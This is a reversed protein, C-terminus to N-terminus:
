ERVVFKCKGVAGGNSYIVAMYMGSPWGLTSVRSMGQHQYVKESHVLEGLLDYCRLEMNSHYQTNEFEFIIRGGSVPNPYAKIPIQKLSAYYQQPSPIEEMGVWELCNTLDIIGSQIQHPCLSDYAYTNTDFPVSELNENIKYLLIDWDSKNEKVDVAYVFNGDSTKILSGSGSCYASENINYVKGSTDIIMESCIGGDPTSGWVSFTIFLSDNIRKIDRSVNAILNPAISDNPIQNHGLTEGDKNFFMLLTNKDNNGLWREGVGMFVSDNLSITNYADGFVSDLPAFPLIWKEKFNSDIGIFLPRLFVHTTDNPYPWYCYGSIYYDSNSELLNYANANRIWSHNNRSAYPKKWLVDGNENLGILHIREFETESHYSCLVVIEGNINILIDIAYGDNFEYFSLLKCWLVEGCSDIKVVYPWTTNNFKSGCYYKNGASDVAVGKFNMYYISHEFEMDYLVNGNIGTKVSLSNYDVYGAILYGKDYDELLDKAGEDRNSSGIHTEWDQNQTYSFNCLMIFIIIQMIKKMNSLFLDYLEM